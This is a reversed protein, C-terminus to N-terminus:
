SEKIIWLGHKNKRHNRFHKIAKKDKKTYSAGKAKTAVTKIKM